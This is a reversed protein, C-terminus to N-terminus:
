VAATGGFARHIDGRKKNCRYFDGSPSVSRFQVDFLLLLEPKAQPPTFCTLKPASFRDFQSASKVSNQADTQRDTKRFVDTSNQRDVYFLLFVGKSVQESRRLCSNLQSM